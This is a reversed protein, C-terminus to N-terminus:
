NTLVNKVIGNVNGEGVLPVQESNKQQTVPLKNAFTSNTPLLYYKNQRNYVNTRKKSLSYIIV